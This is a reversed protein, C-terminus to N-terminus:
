DFKVDEICFCLSLPSEPATVLLKLVFWRGISGESVFTLLALRVAGVFVDHLLKVKGAM